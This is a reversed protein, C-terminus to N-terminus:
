SSSKLRGHEDLPDSRGQEGSEGIGERGHEDLTTTLLDTLVISLITPGHRRGGTWARSASGVTKCVTVAEPPADHMVQAFGIVKIVSGASM